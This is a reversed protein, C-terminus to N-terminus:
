KKEKEAQEKVAKIIASNNNYGGYKAIKDDLQFNQSPNTTLLQVAYPSEHLQIVASYDDTKIFAESYKNTRKVTSLLDVEEDALNFIDKTNLITDSKQQMIIKFYVNEAIAARSNSDSYDLASQTSTIIGGNLAGVLRYLSYILEMFGLQKNQLLLAVEDFITRKFKKPNLCMFEWFIGILNITALSQIEPDDDLGLLNFGFIEVTEFNIDNKSKVNFFSSFVKRGTYAKLNKLIKDIKHEKYDSKHKELLKIYDSLIPEENGFKEYLEYITNELLTSITKDIDFITDGPEKVLALLFRLITLVKGQTIEGTYIKFPNLPTPNELDFDIYKGGLLKILRKQSPKKEILFVMAGMEVEQLILSGLFFTKGSRTPGIVIMNKNDLNPSMTDLLIPEGSRNKVLIGSNSGKYMKSFDIFSSANETKILFSRYNNGIVGPLTALYLPVSDINEIYGGMGSLSGMKSLIRAQRIELEEINTNATIISLSFTVTQKYDDIIENEFDKISKLQRQATKARIFVEAIFKNLFLKSGTAEESDEKKIEIVLDHEFNLDYLLPNVFSQVFTDKRFQKTKSPLLNMSVINVTKNGIVIQRNDSYDIDASLLQSNPALYSDSYIKPKTDLNHQSVRSEILKKVENGDLKKFNLSLNFLTNEFGVCIERLLNNAKSENQQANLFGLLLQKPSSIPNPSYGITVFIRYKLFQSLGIMKARGNHTLNIIESSSFLKNQKYNSKQFSYLIKVIANKPLQDLFRKYENDNKEREFSLFTNMGKESKIEYIYCFSNNKLLIKGKPDIYDYPM